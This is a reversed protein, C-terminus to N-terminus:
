LKSKRIEFNSQFYSFSLQCVAVDKMNLPYKKTLNEVGDTNLQSLDAASFSDRLPNPLKEIASWSINCAGGVNKSFQSQPSTLNLHIVEDGTKLKPSNQASSFKNETPVLNLKRLQAESQHVSKLTMEEKNLKQNQEDQIILSDVLKDKADGNNEGKEEQIVTPSINGSEDIEMVELTLSKKLASQQMAKVQLHTGGGNAISQKRVKSQKSFSQSEIYSKNTFDIQSIKSKYYDQKKHITQKNRRSELIQKKRIRYQLAKAQNEKAQQLM